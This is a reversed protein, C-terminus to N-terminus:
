RPHLRDISQCRLFLQNVPNFALVQTKQSMADLEKDGVGSVLAYNNNCEQFTEAPQM